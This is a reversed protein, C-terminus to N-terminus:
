KFFWSKQRRKDDQSRAVYLPAGTYPDEGTHFMVSALTMPTPTLDQVQETHLHLRRTKESLRRMDAETCGPHSSIFYPILQTKLGEAETIRRFDANLREFSEWPPKRMLKLVHEETHEPAVKLRGSTHNIMIERLYKNIASGGRGSRTWGEVPPSGSGQEFLDYRIGSGVFAKKVGKVGRVRRYLELLRSHSNDLNPCLRPTLCSPRRCVGCKSADRGAMGYMNASPGGLDSLYGKFYPMAVVREVEGLVSAESRSTIFKGQHASITCFSCGGFCGRHINVSNKIMEWAPIDGRGNYRPHPLREYPLEFSRDLEQTTMLPHPPNVVVFREGVPEVITRTQHLLNSETEIRVFNEAFKRRDAVCVGFSHLVLTASPDLREVYAGGALFAVQPLGRLLKMNFGNRLARAIGVISVDGMGYAVIDAGSEALISPRL